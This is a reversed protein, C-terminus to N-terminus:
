LKKRITFASYKQSTGRPTTHIFKKSELLELGEPLIEKMKEEDYSIIDLGACQIEGDPAFTNIFAIGGNALSQALVEFYADREKKTLLFHFVARDHWINYSKAPKFALIDSCIYTPYTYSTLREKVINL